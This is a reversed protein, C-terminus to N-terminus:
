GRAASTGRRRAFPATPSSRSATRCGCSRLKATRTLPFGQRARRGGRQRARGSRRWRPPLVVPRLEDRPEQMVFLLMFEMATRGLDECTRRVLYFGSSSTSKAEGTRRGPSPSNWAAGQRTARFTARPGCPGAPSPSPPDGALAAGARRPAGRGGQDTSFGVGEGRGAGDRQSVQEVPAVLEEDLVEHWGPCAWHTPQENSTSWM